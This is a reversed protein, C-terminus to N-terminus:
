YRERIKMLEVCASRCAIYLFTSPFLHRILLLPLPMYICLCQVTTGQIPRVATDYTKERRSM